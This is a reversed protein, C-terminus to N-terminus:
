SETKCIMDDGNLLTESELAKLFVKLMDESSYVRPTKVVEYISEINICAHNACMAPLSFSGNVNCRDITTKTNM